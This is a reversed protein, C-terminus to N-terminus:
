LSPHNAPSSIKNCREKWRPMALAEEASVRPFLDIVKPLTAQALNTYGHIFPVLFIYVCVDSSEGNCSILIKEFGPKRMHGCM